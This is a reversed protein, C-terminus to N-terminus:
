GPRASLIKLVEDGTNRLVFKAEATSGKNVRGLDIEAQEIIMRPGIAAEGAPAPPAPPPAPADARAAPAAAALVLALALPRGIEQCRQHLKM